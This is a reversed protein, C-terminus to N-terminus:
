LDWDCRPKPQRYSFDHQRPWVPLSNPHFRESPPPTFFPLQQQISQVIHINPSNYPIGEPNGWSECDDIDTPPFDTIKTLDLAALQRHKATLQFSASSYSHPALHSQGHLIRLSRIESEVKDRNRPLSQFLHLTITNQQEYQIQLQRNLEDGAAEITTRPIFTRSLLSIEDDLRAKEDQLLQIELTVPCSCPMASM